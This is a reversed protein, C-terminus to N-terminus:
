ASVDWSSPLGRTRQRVLSDVSVEAPKCALLLSGQKTISIVAPTACGM